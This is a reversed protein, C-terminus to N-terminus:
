MSEDMLLQRNVETMAYKAEIASILGDSALYQIAKEWEDTKPKLEPKQKTGSIPQKLPTMAQSVPKSAKGHDNTADADKTDDLLFMNGLAYKGSYSSASGFAQPLQMGGAKEIGASGRTEVFDKGDDVRVITEMFIFAGVEKVEDTLTMLLGREALLPKVAELIDEKSRYKYKGFANYQNKPAKLDAQIEILKKM